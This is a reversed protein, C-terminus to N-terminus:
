EKFHQDNEEETPERILEVEAGLVEGGPFSRLVGPLGSHMEAAASEETGDPIDLYIKAVIVRDAMQSGKTSPM